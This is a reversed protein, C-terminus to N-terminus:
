IQPGPDLDEESETYLKGDSDLYYAAGNVPCEYGYKRAPDVCCGGLIVDDYDRDPTVYGYLVRKKKLPAGHKPCVLTKNEAM